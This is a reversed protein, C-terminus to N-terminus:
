TFTGTFLTAIRELAKRREQGIPIAEITAERMFVVKGM